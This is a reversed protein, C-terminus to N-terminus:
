RNSVGRLEAHPQDGTIAGCTGVRGGCVPLKLASSWVQAAVKEILGEVGRGDTAAM